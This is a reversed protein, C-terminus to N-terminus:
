VLDTLQSNCHSFIKAASRNSQRLTQPNVRSEGMVFSGLLKEVARLIWPTPFNRTRACIIFVLALMFRLLILDYPARRFLIM